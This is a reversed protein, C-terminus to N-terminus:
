STRAIHRDIEEFVLDESMTHLAGFYKM